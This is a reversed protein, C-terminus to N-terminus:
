LTTTPPAVTLPTGNFQIYRIAQFMVAVSDKFCGLGVNCKFCLLGRVRETDHCHDICLTNTRHGKRGIKNTLTVSCIACRGDQAALRDELDKPRMRYKNYLHRNKFYTPDYQHTARYETTSKRRCAICWSDPRGKRIYFSAIPKASKCSPCHKSVRM